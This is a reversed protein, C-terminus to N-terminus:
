KRENNTNTFCIELSQTSLWLEVNTRFILGNKSTDDLSKASTCVDNEYRSFVAHLQGFLFAELSGRAIEFEDFKEAFIIFLTSKIEDPLVRFYRAKLEIQRSNRREFDSFAANREFYYMTLSMISNVWQHSHRYRWARYVTAIGGREQSGALWQMM